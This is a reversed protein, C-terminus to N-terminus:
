TIIATASGTSPSSRSDVVCPSPLNQHELDALASQATGESHRMAHLMMTAQGSADHMDLPSPFTMFSM